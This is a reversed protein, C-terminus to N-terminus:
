LYHPGVAMSRAGAIEDACEVWGMQRCKEVWEDLVIAGAKLLMIAVGGFGNLLALRLATQGRGDVIELKDRGDREHILAAVVDSRGGIAAHHLVNLGGCDGTWGFQGGELDMLYKVVSTQGSAAAEHIALMGGNERHAVDAGARLLREICEMRGARAAYHLASRGNKTVAHVDAGCQLVLTLCEACQRAALHIACEGLRNKLTVDAGHQLLLRVVEAFGSACAIMLATWDGAKFADLKAGADLLVAVTDPCGRRSAEHLATKFQTKHGRVNPDAGLSLILATITAPTPNYSVALLLATEDSATRLNLPSSQAPLSRIIDLLEPAQASRCAKLFAKSAQPSTSM